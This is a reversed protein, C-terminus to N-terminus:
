KKFMKSILGKKRKPPPIPIGQLGQPQGSDLPPMEELPEMESAHPIDFEPQEPVPQEPVPPEPALPEPAPPEGLEAMDQKGLEALAADDIDDIGGIGEMGEADDPLESGFDADLPPMDGADPLGPEQAEFSPPLPPFAPASPVEGFEPEEPIEPMPQAKGLDENYSEMRAKVEEGSQPSMTGREDLLKQFIMSKKNVNDFLAQDQPYKPEIRAALYALNDLVQRMVEFNEQEAAMALKDVLSLLTAEEYVRLMESHLGSEKDVFAVPLTSYIQHAQLYAERIMDFEGADTHGRIRALIQLIMKHMGKTGKDARKKPLSAIHPLLEKYEVFLSKQYPILEIYGRPISNYLQVAEVYMQQALAYDKKKRGRRCDALLGDIKKLTVTMDAIAAKNLQMSIAHHLDVIGVELDAKIAIYGDPLKAYHETIEEYADRAEDFSKQSVLKSCADIKHKVFQAEAEVENISSSTNGMILKQYMDLIKNQLETKDKLFGEPLERYLANIKDFSTHAADFDNKDINDATVQMLDLVTKSKKEFESTLIKKKSLIIKKYLSLLRDQLAVRREIFGEPLVLYEHKIQLYLVDVADLQEHTTIGEKSMDEARDLLESIHAFKKDFKTKIATDSGMIFYENLKGISDQLKREEQLYEKSLGDKKRKIEFFIAKAGEVDGKQILENARAVLQAIDIHAKRDAATEAEKPGAAVDSEIPAAEHKEGPTPPAPRVSTSLEIKPQAPEAFEGGKTINIRLGEKKAEAAKKGKEPPPGFNLYPTTFRYTIHFIQEEELLTALSEVTKIPLNLDKSTQELSVLRKGELYEVLRDVDTLVLRGDGMSAIKAVM